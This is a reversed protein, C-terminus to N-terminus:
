QQKRYWPLRNLPAAVTKVCPGEEISGDDGLWRGPPFQVTKATAGKEMVPAVLIDDGLMFQDKIEEYGDDPYVYALHRVIPEGTQAAHQALRVFLDGMDAHLRAAEVCYRHHEEDLVRWPAASFQMMPFLASCQAYRVVLEQDLSASHALFSAFEGGGIMDPCTYAYGLLGQALGDPILQAMGNIGWAHNKDRLRQALPQGALKWCARYENLRYRLGIKGWAESHGSPSASDPSVDTIQYFEIDGADLKFGDVGYLEQLERLQGHFWAVAEENTLDLVASYGNWWKRIAPIGAKDSLLYGKPELTRYVMSDPSVFPCVWLMVKFGMEHLRDTMEKPNPFRAPHFTWTGYPEHWNDDIMIVGPPMGNALVAKAYELVKEQTPNYLLEIWLNYQPATFMLEDPWTGSPPFYAQSVHRFVNRLNGHGEGFQLTAARSEAYLIGKEVSFAFPEESWIFRGKSSLLLPCAQNGGHDSVLDAKYDENRFPMRIGDAAKGGWWYEDPWLEVRLSRATM